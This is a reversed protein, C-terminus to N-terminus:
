RFTASSSLRAKANGLRPPRIIEEPEDHEEPFTGDSYLGVCVINCAPVVKILDNRDAQNLVAAEYDTTRHVRRDESDRYGSWFPLIRLFLFKSDVVPPLQSVLGVYVKKDNLTVMVPRPAGAEFCSFFYEEAELKRWRRFRYVFREPDLKLQEYLLTWVSVRGTAAVGVAGSLLMSELQNFRGSHYLWLGVENEPVLCNLALVLLASLVLTGMATGFYPFPAYAQKLIQLADGMWSHALAVTLIRSACLLAIGALSAM